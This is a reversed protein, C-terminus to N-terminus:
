VSYMDKNSYSANRQLAESHGQFGIEIEIGLAKKLQRGIEETAEKDSATKTWISLRDQAKRVSVVVGCIEDGRNFEEGVCALITNLWYQDLLTDRKGRPIPVVWKGGKENAPDEWMPQVGEKFFSYNAGAMLGTAKMVNNYMGWFDEVTGVTIVKKLNQSWNAQTTKKQPNDFWLTWRNQLPHKVNYNISDVLASIEGEDVGYNEGVEKETEAGNAVVETEEM